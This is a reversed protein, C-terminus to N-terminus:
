QQFASSALGSKEARGGQSSLYVGKLVQEIRAEKGVSNSAPFREAEEDMFNSSEAKGVGWM